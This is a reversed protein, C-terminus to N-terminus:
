SAAEEALQGHVNFVALDAAARGAAWGRANSIRVTREVLHPFLQDTAAQVQEDVQALVPVLESSRGSTALSDAASDRLREGIRDAYSILFSRRFSATTSPASASDHGRHLLMARDAQVLLSTVLLETADVDIPRGVLTVFGLGKSFVSSCHNAEAVVHVLMSKASVYPADLWIRRVILQEGPSGTHAQASLEDLAYASILQQAKATLAESEEPFETSEAKALLARVKALMRHEAGEGIRFTGPPSGPPPTSQALPPLQSFLCMLELAQAVVTVATLDVASCEGLGDLEDQWAPSVTAAPHRQTEERVLMAILPMHRTTLRRRTVEGLDSPTWGHQLVAVTLDTLARRLMTTLHRKPIEFTLRTAQETAPAAGYRVKTLAESLLHAAREADGLPSEGPTGSGNDDFRPRGSAGVQQRRRNAARRARNNIGM